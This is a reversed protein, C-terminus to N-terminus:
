GAVPVGVYTNGDDDGVILGAPGFIAGVDGVPPQSGTQSLAVLTLDARLTWIKKPDSNLMVMTRTGVSLVVNDSYLPVYPCLAVPTAPAPTWTLGDKSMWNADPGSVESAVLLHDNFRCVFLSLGSQPKANPLTDKTWTAGDPSSWLTPMVAPTSSNGCTKDPFTTEGSLVFGGAVSTGGEIGTYGAFAAGKMDVSKWTLGDTSTWVGDSGATIYGSAGGDVTAGYADTQVTKWTRGDASLAEPWAYTNSGCDAHATGIALLGAPGEVVGGIGDQMDPPDDDVGGKQTFEGGLQWHAGDSSTKTKTVLRWSGDDNDTELQDFALYGRSWGYLTWGSENDVGAPYNDSDTPEAWVDDQGAIKTWHISTWNGAPLPAVPGATGATGAPITPATTPATPDAPPDYTDTPASGTSAADTAAAAFSGATPFPLSAPPASSAPKSTAAATCSATVAVLV